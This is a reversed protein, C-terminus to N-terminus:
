KAGGRSHRGHRAKHAKRHKKAVCKGHRRVKGKKCRPKPKPNGPGQFVASGAGPQDPSSSGPGECAGAALDCPPLGAPPFDIGGGIRADYLRAYAETADPTLRAAETFFLDRGSPSITAVKPGSESGPWSRQGDSVLLARGDRWEYVDAGTEPNQGPAATNHDASVLASPAVFALDGDDAISTMNPAPEVEFIIGEAVPGRPPSGDSPCSACALSRGEGAAPDGDDYLYFQASGANDSDTLQDLGTAASRFELYRGDPSIATGEFPNEGVQESTNLPAVYALSGTETNVRYIAKTGAPAAGPLLQSSTTFYLRPGDPAIAISRIGGEPQSGGQVSVNAPAGGPVICTLCAFDHSAIDYRYVDGGVM